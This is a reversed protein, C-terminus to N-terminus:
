ITSPPLQSTSVVLRGRGQIEIGGDIEAKTNFAIEMAAKDLLALVQAAVWWTSDLWESVRGPHSTAIVQYRTQVWQNRGLYSPNLALNESFVLNFNAVM